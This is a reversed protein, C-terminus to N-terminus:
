EGPSLLIRWARIALVWKTAHNRREGWGFRHGTQLFQCECEAVIGRCGYGGCEKMKVAGRWRDFKFAYVDM